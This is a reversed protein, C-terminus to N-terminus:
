AEALTSVIASQIGALDIQVLNRAEELPITFEAVYRARYAASELRHYTATLPRLASTRGIFDHRETHDRPELQLREWLYGNVLHVASYFAAIV